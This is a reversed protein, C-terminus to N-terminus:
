WCSRWGGADERCRVRLVLLVQLHLVGAAEPIEVAPNEPAPRELEGAVGQPPGLAPVSAGDVAACLEAEARDAGEVPHRSDRGPDRGWRFPSQRNGPADGGGQDAAGRRAALGPERAHARAARRVGGAALRDCRGLVGFVPPLVFGGLAGLMGVLGGVAGVDKPFYNPVYKYVSAKGIGM